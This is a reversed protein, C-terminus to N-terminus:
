RGSVHKMSSNDSKIISNEIAAKRIEVALERAITKETDQRYLPIREIQWPHVGYHSVFVQSALMGLCLLFVLQAGFLLTYSRCAWASAETPRGFEFRLLSVEKGLHESYQKRLRLMLITALIVQIAITLVILIASIMGGVINLQIFTRPFLQKYWFIGAIFISAMFPLYITLMLKLLWGEDWAKINVKPRRMIRRILATIGWSALFLAVTIASIVMLNAYSVIGTYPQSIAIEQLSRKIRIVGKDFAANIAQYRKMEDTMGFDRCIADLKSRGIAFVATANLYSVYNGPEISTMRIGMKCVDESTALAGDVDRARLQANSYGVMQRAVERLESMRPSVITHDSNAITNMIRRSVEPTATRILKMSNAKRVEKLMDSQRGMSGFIHARRYAILANDSDVAAFRDLRALKKRWYEPPYLRYSVPMGPASFPSRSGPKTAISKRAETEAREDEHSYRRHGAIALAKKGLNGTKILHEMDTPPSLWALAQEYLSNGPSLVLAQKLKKISEKNDQDGNGRGIMDFHLFWGDLYLKEARAQPSIPPIFVRALFLITIIAIIAIQFRRLTWRSRM